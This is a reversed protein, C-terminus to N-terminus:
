HEKLQTTPNLLHITDSRTAKEIIKFRREIAALMKPNDPILDRITFNSTIIFYHHQLNVSGGKTEGTCAYKDSWIKLYHNLCDSDLDDLLIVHEGNYGDFWKSQPKSYLDPFIERVSHSKGSGPPGHIWIGRVTPHQYPKNLILNLDRLGRGFKVFVESHNNAIDHMSSGEKLADIASSLDTRKGPTPPNGFEVYDGDKKCYDAAQLSTGKTPELHALLGLKKLAAIRNLKQTTFFGQLHPTGSEGVESGYVLYKCHTGAFSSLFNPVTDEYNNWTFCYRKSM